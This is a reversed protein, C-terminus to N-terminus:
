PTITYWAAAQPSALYGAAVGIAKLTESASVTISGGPSITPSARDPVTGDTTYYIVAGPTSDTITVMQPGKYTGTPLSIVPEATAIYYDSLAVASASYNPAVAMAQLRETSSITIPTGGYVPSSATPTTHDTTYHITAGALSDMISVMVSSKYFGAALSFTPTPAYPPIITYSAVGLPSLAYGTAVAYAKITETATVPIPNMPNFIPSAKSPVTGDTTYYIVAGPTADTITVTQPSTYTGGPPSIVPQAAAQREIVYVATAVVSNAYGSAVALAEVTFTGSSDFVLPKTYMASSTTPTTGDTTYYITAGATADTITVTASAYSGPTPSFTPPAVQKGQVVEAVSNSTAAAFNADGPYNATLADTGAPLSSTNLTAVGSSLVGAGISATGDYFTVTESNTTLSGASYPSLTATLTIQSGLNSPNASTTLRLTTAVVGGSSLTVPNSTSPGFNTNGPYSAVVQQAAGAAGPVSINNVTVTATETVIQNLLIQVDTTFYLPIALDAFGDGNFDGTAIWDPLSPVLSGYPILFATPFTGDGKGFSVVVPAPGRVGETALDPIGDGNFDGVAVSVDGGSVAAGKTFSGDGKGLLIQIGSPASDSVALDPIGDGNFDGQALSNAFAGTEITSPTTFTGDGMGLLITVYGTSPMDALGQSNAVALDPIGDGNFDATVLFNPPNPLSTTSKTIFTGDGNGLLLTVTQDPNNAVALDAIGDGNFDAVAICVPGNGVNLTPKPVFTGDGKGLFISVTSDGANAVAMDPIGDGNFDGVALYDPSAGVNQSSGLRFTGDGNGLHVEASGNANGGANCDPCIPFALDPIGDGNFDAVIVSWPKLAITFTSGLIFGNASTATGLPATALLANGNTTDLLSVDGDLPLTSSGLGLVTATLSYNDISGSFSLTTTTPYSPGTLEAPSSSSKAYSKTGVFVAKYSHSGAGPRFKYTAIGAPTLQATALLASDECYKASADCFKVQGPTVNTSGSVVTATLTIVTGAAVSTVASGGSTVTLSTTTPAAVAWAPSPSWAASLVVVTTAILARVTVRPFSLPLLSSALDSPTM